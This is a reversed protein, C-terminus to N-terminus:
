ILMELRCTCLSLLFGGSVETSEPPQTTIATLGAPLGGPVGTLSWKAEGGANRLGNTAGSGKPLRTNELTNVHCNM